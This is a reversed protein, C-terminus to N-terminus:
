SASASDADTTTLTADPSLTLASAADHSRVRYHYTTGPSLGTLQMAHRVDVLSDVPTTLGYNATLGYEVQGDAPVDTTWTVNASSATLGPTAVVDSIAPGNDVQVNVSASGGSRGLADTARASIAHPVAASLGATTWTFAYPASTLPTGVAQGDVYFQLQTVTADDDVVASLQTQGTVVSGDPPGTLTVSPPVQQVYAALPSRAGPNGTGFPQPFAALSTGVGSLSSGGSSAQRLNVAGSGLPSLVAIWYRTSRLLPVPGINIGSWGGAQGAGNGQALITAPTGNQDSYLAVRLNSTTSGADVYVRAVRALGSQAAVYQYAAAQGGPLTLSDTQLTDDGVLNALGAPATSFTADGSAGLAGQNDWAKVRYHYTTGPQLGALQMDQDPQASAQNYVKLLTFSGYNSTTGYEVQAVNGTATAWGVRALTG